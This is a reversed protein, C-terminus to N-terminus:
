LCDLASTIEERGYGLGRLLGRIYTRLGPRSEGFSLAVRVGDRRIHISEDDGFIEDPQGSEQYVCEQDFESLHELQHILTMNNNEKKRGRETHLPVVIM